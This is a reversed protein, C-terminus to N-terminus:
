RKFGLPAALEAIRAAVIRNGKPPLHCFDLYLYDDVDLASTFDHFAGSQAIKQQLLPYVARYQRELTQWLAIHDLRARSFYAVPQLIGLFAGGHWEVLQKAFRWDSLLNEAIAEAKEPNRHCDHEEGQMARTGERKVNQAVAQIPAFYHAFSDASGSRRLIQDFRQEFAHSEPNLEIRCKNMVENVGDYFVVLDPRRGAQLLEILLSLGQHATYATEGFNDSRMGTLAAFHSPITGADDSGEGWMTSGGFFYATKDGALSDNRTRRQLYAGEVNIREGNLAGRRWGVHSRYHFGIRHLEAQYTGVWSAEADSYVRPVPAHVTLWAKGARLITGVAPITWYLINALVFFILLNYLVVRAVRSRPPKMTQEAFQQAAPGVRSHSV